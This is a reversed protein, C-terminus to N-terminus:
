NVSAAKVKGIVSRKRPKRTGRVPQILTEEEAIRWTIDTERAGAIWCLASLHKQPIRSYGNLYGNLSARTVAIGTRERLTRALWAQTRGERKLALKLPELAYRREATQERWRLTAAASRATRITRITERKAVEVSGRQVM